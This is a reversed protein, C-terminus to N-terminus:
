FNPYCINLKKLRSRLTNPHLGAINAIGAPGAIRGKCAKLLTEFYLRQLTDFDIWNGSADKLFNESKNLVTETHNNFNSNEHLKRDSDLILHPHTKNQAMALVSRMVTNRLERVNGPWYWQKAEKLFISATEAPLPLHFGSQFESLFLKLLPELDESRERLPPIYLSLVNLRYYLDVRFLKQKVLDSLSRNTASIIRINVPIEHSSGVRRIRRDQVAHLLKAQMSLPLEGIEDLFLTGGDAEEFLGRHLKRADTFAGPEHGFLEAEILNEPIASCNVRVFPRASRGSIQHITQAVVEKGTGSEGTILVPVDFTAAQEILQQLKRLSPTHNLLTALPLSHSQEIAARLEQNISELNSNRQEMRATLAFGVQLSLLDRLEEVQKVHSENFASQMRSYFCAVGLHRGDLRLRVMVYSQIGTIVQPAVANTFPDSAINKVLYVPTKWPSRKLADHSDDLKVIDYIERASQRTSHALFHVEHSNAYYTNVFIGDAPFNAGLTKLLCRLTLPLAQPSSLVSAVSWSSAKSM